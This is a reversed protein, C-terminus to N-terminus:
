HITFNGGALPFWLEPPPPPNPGNLIQALTLFPPLGTASIAKDPTAGGSGNDQVILVTLSGEFGPPTNFVKTVIGAVALEDGVYMYETVDFHFWGVGNAGHLSSSGKGKVSGDPLEILHVQFSVGIPTEWQGHGTFIPDAGGPSSTASGILLAASLATTLALTGALKFM